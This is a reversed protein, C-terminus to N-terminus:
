INGYLEAYIMIRVSIYKIKKEWNDSWLIPIDEMDDAELTGIIRDKVVIKLDTRQVQTNNVVRYTTYLNEYNRNKSM